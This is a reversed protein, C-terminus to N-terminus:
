PLSALLERWDFKIYGAKAGSRKAEEFMARTKLGSLVLPRQPDGHGWRSPRTTVIDVDRLADVRRLSLPISEPATKVVLPGFLFRAHLSVVADAATGKAVRADRLSFTDIWFRGPRRAALTRVAEAVAARRPGTGVKLEVIFLIDAYRPDCADQLTWLRGAERRRRLEARPLGRVVAAPHHLYHVWEGGVRAWCLDGEAIHVYQPLARAATLVDDLGARSNLKRHHVLGFRDGALPFPTATPNPTATPMPTDM